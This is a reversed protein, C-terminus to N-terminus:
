LKEIENLLEKIQSKLEFVLLKVKIIKTSIGDKSILTEYYKMQECFSKDYLMMNNIKDRSTCSTSHDLGFYGSAEAHTYGGKFAFYMIIQRGLSKGGGQRGPNIDHLEEPVLNREHCIIEEIIEITM